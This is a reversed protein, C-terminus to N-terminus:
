QVVWIGYRILALEIYRADAPAAPSHMNGVLRLYARLAREAVEDPLKALDGITVNDLIRDVDYAPDDYARRIVTVPLHEQTM